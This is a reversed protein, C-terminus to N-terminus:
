MCFQTCLFLHLRFFYLNCQKVMKLFNSFILIIWTRCASSLPIQIHVLAGFNNMLNITGQSYWDVVVQSRIVDEYIMISPASWSSFMCILYTWGPQVPLCILPRPGPPKHIPPNSSRVHHARWEQEQWGLYVSLLVSILTVPLLWASDSVSSCFHAEEEAIERIPWGSVAAQTRLPTSCYIGGAARRSAKSPLGFSDRRYNSQLKEPM